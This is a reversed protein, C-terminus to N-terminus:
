FGGEWEEDTFKGTFLKARLEAKKEEPSRRLERRHWNRAAAQWDRMANGNSLKWGQAAYYDYFNQADVQLKESVVFKKIEEVTPATFRPATRKAPAAGEEIDLYLNLKNLNTSQHSTIKEKEKYLPNYPPFKEREKQASHGKTHGNTHGNRGEVFECCVAGCLNIITGSHAMKQATKQARIIEIQKEEALKELCNRVKKHSLGIQKAIDRVSIKIVSYDDAVLLLHLLVLCMEPEGYHKWNLFEQM